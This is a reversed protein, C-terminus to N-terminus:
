WVASVLIDWLPETAMGVIILVIGGLFAKLSRLLHEGRQRNYRTVESIWSKYKATIQPLYERQTQEEELISNIRGSGIGVNGSPTFLAWGASLISVVFAFIGFFILPNTYTAAVDFEVAAAIIITLILGDIQILSIARDGLGTFTHIRQDLSRQAEPQLRELAALHDTDANDTGANESGQEANVLVTLSAKWDEEESNIEVDAGWIGDFMRIRVRITHDTEGVDRDFM